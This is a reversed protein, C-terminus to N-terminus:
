ARSKNGMAIVAFGYAVGWQGMGGTRRCAVAGALPLRRKRLLAM